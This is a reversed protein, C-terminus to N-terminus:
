DDLPRRGVTIAPAYAPTPITAVLELGVGRLLAQAEEDDVPTGGLGM